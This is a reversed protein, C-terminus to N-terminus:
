HTTTAPRRRWRTSGELLTAMEGVIDDRPTQAITIAGVTKV